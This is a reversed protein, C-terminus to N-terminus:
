SSSNKPSVTRSGPTSSRTCTKFVNPLIPGPMKPMGDHHAGIDFASTSNTRRPVEARIPQFRLVFRPLVVFIVISVRLQVIIVVKVVLPVPAVQRRAESQRPPSLLFRIAPRHGYLGRALPYYALTTVNLAKAADVTAQNHGRHRALLSYHIQNSALNIGRDKLFSHCRKLLTPGYNSVGVEKVLGLEVCRALGEWYAEDKENVYGFMRLPQVIDPMHLQYLDIQDVKLRQRSAECAAVVSEPGMRWPGPTFKTAVVGPGDGLAEALLSEGAGVSYREATDFFTLGKDLALQAIDRQTEKTMRSKIKDGPLYLNGEKTWSITGIALNPVKLSGINTEDPLMVQEKKVPDPLMVQARKRSSVPPAVTLPRCRSFCLVMVLLLRTM